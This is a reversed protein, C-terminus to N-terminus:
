LYYGKREGNAKDIIEKNAEKINNILTKLDDNKNLIGGYKDIFTEINQLYEENYYLTIEDFYPIYKIKNFLNFIIKIKDKNDEITAM